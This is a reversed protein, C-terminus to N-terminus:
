GRKRLAYVVARLGIGPLHEGDERHVVEATGCDVHAHIREEFEPHERAHDNLSFVFLGGIPLVELAHDIAVAPAHGPNISGVAVAHAVSEPRIPLPESMDHLFTRRYVQRERAKELMEETLDSGDIVTFGAERLALGSIGTGCGLDLVPQELDDVHEALVKACRAPTIYGEGEVESEYTDAWDRYFDRTADINELGYARSLFKKDTETM